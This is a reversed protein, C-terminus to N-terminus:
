KEVEIEVKPASLEHDVGEMVGVLPTVVKVVYKGKGLPGAAARPFGREPPTGKYKEPAWKMKVAEWSVRMRATGAAAITVKATKPETPPAQTANKPPPPPQGAPMDIRKGKKDYTEVEFRPMPDIRFSLTLPAKSKNAFSVILDAKAGPPLKTPSAGVTVELKGKMDAPPITDPKQNPVECSSKLLIDEVNGIEFGVCEDKKEGKDGDSEPKDTKASKDGPAKTDDSASENKRDDTKNAENAATEPDKAKGGCGSSLVSAASLISVSLLTLRHM